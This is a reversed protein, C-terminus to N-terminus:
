LTLFPKLYIVVITIHQGDIIVFFDPLNIHLYLADFELCNQWLEQALGRSIYFTATRKIFWGNSRPTMFKTFNCFIFYGCVSHSINM